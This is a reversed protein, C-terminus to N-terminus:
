LAKIVFKAIGQVNAHDVVIPEMRDNEPILLYRGQEPDYGLRKLTSTNEYLAVVIDGVKATEQKKIVILDGSEIGANVMSDGVARIIYSEGSGFISTPLRVYGEIAAEVEELPGCPISGTYVEASQSPSMRLMKETVIERGDYQILGRENMEILYRYATGRAIGVANGIETTSPSRGESLYYNEAFQRINLMLDMDKHRM